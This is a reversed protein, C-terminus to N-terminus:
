FEIKKPTTMPWKKRSTKSEISIFSNGLLAMEALFLQTMVDGPSVTGRLVFGVSVRFYLILNYYLTFIKYVM